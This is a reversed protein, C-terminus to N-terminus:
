IGPRGRKWNPHGSVPPNKTYDDGANWLYDKVTKMDNPDAFFDKYPDIFSIHGDASLVNMKVNKYHPTGIRIEQLNQPTPRGSGSKPDTAWIESNKEYYNKYNNGPLTDVVKWKPPNAPDPIVNGKLSEMLIIVNGPVQSTKLLPRSITPDYVTGTAKDKLAAGMWTNYVYDGCYATTSTLIMDQPQPDTTHDRAPCTFVYKIIGSVAIARDTGGMWNGKNKGLEQGIFMPEFFDMEPGGPIQFRAPIAYGRYDAAYMQWLNYFQRETSQCAVMNAQERAKSLAPLLIGILVAIIGIVVLLEVLTFGTAPKRKASRRVPTSSADAAVTSFPIALGGTPGQAVPWKQPQAARTGATSTPIAKQLPM